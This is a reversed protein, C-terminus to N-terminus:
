GSNNPHSFQSALTSGPAQYTEHTKRRKHYCYIQPSSTEATVNRHKLGAYQSRSSTTLPGVPVEPFRRRGYRAAGVVTRDQALVLAGKMSGRDATQARR